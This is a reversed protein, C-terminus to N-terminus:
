AKQTSLCVAQTSQPCTCPLVQGRRGGVAEWEREQEAEKRSDGVSVKIGEIRFGLTSTSSMSERWQMYRPKTVAGQAHEEVTPAGPDVAVMKEYM